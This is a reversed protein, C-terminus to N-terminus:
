YYNQKMGKLFDQYGRKRLLGKRKKIMGLFCDIFSILENLEETESDEQNKKIEIHEINQGVNVHCFVM